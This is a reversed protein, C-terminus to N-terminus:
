KDDKDKKELWYSFLEIAIGSLVPAIFLTIIQILM